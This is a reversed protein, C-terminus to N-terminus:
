PTSGSSKLPRPHGCFHTIMKPYCGKLYLTSPWMLRTLCGEVIVFVIGNRSNVLAM